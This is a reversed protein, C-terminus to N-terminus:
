GSLERSDRRASVLLEITSCRGRCSCHADGPWTLEHEFEDGAEDCCCVIPVVTVPATSM